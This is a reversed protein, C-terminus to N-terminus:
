RLQPERGARVFELFLAGDNVPFDQALLLYVRFALAAALAAILLTTGIGGADDKARTPATRLPQGSIM